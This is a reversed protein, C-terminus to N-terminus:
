QRQRLAARFSAAGQLPLNLQQCLLQLRHVQEANDLAPIGQPSLHNNEFGIRADLGLLMASLVCDQERAGFACVACRVGQQEFRALSLRRLDWPSPQRGCQYRGLVVLTHQNYAPLVGRERLQFYREIDAQDYLIIQSIINQEAAWYFFESVTETDRPESFLERLAFSAAEPQVARILAMQQEPTYQGVAETTLQVLMQEGVATKVAQYLAANDDIALSHNGHQDRAHLHVMAAGAKQCALVEAVIEQQSMPLHSHDAKSKLAGNPAVMIAVSSASNLSDNVM